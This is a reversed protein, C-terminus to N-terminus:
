ARPAAGSCRKPGRQRPSGRPAPSPEPVETVPGVVTEAVAELVPEVPEPVTHVHAAPPEPASPEAKHRGRQFDECEKLLHSRLGLRDLQQDRDLDRPSITELARLTKQRQHELREHFKAAPIELKGEGERLGAAVVAFTPVTHLLNEFYRALLGEFLRSGNNMRFSLM